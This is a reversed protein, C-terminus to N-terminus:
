EKGALSGRGDGFEFGGAAEVRIIGADVELEGFSVGEDMAVGVGGLGALFELLKFMRRASIKLFHRSGEQDVCVGSGVVGDREDHREFSSIYCHRGDRYYCAVYPYLLSAAIRQVRSLKAARIHWDKAARLSRQQPREFISTPEMPAVAHAIM